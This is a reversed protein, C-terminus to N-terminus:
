VCVGGEEVFILRVEDGSEEEVETTKYRGSSGQPIKGSGVILSLRGRSLSGFVRTGQLLSFLNCHFGSLVRIGKYNLLYGGGKM